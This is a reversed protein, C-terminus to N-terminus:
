KAPVFRYDTITVGPYFLDGILYTLCLDEERVDWRFLADIERCIDTVEGTEVSIATGGLELRLRQDSMVYFNGHLDGIYEKTAFSYEVRDPSVSLLLEVPSGDAEVLSCQWDGYFDWEVEPVSGTFEPMLDYPSFDYILKNENELTGYKESRLPAYEVALDGKTAVIMLNPVTESLNGQILIPMGDSCTLLQEGRNTQSGSEAKFINITVSDDLPMVCYLEGGENQAFHTDKIEPIFSYQSIYSQEKIDNQVASFDGEVRGLYAVGILSEAMEIQMQVDKIHPNVEQVGCATLLCLCLLVSIIKKM